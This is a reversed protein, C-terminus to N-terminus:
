CYVKGIGWSGDVITYYLIDAIYLVAAIRNLAMEIGNLGSEIGRYYEANIFRLLRKFLM